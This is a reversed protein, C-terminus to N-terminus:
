QQRLEQEVREAVYVKLLSQYHVDRKNALLKLDEILTEPMRISITRTSPKLNALKVRKAKSWDVYESSDRKAWFAREEDESNFRPVKRMADKKPM